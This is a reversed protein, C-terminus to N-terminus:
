LFSIWDQYQSQFKRNLNLLDTKITAHQEIIKNVLKHLSVATVENIDIYFDAVDLMQTLGRSKPQYGIFITPTGSSISFIGTHMRTAIMCDMKQYAAKVEISTSMTDILHVRDIQLKLQEYVRNAVIRDDQNHSPGFSQVFIFAEVAHKKALEQFLQVFANEYIAQQRFDTLQAERDIVTFGIRLTPSIKAKIATAEPVTPLSFAIDTMLMVQKQIRLTEKVFAFSIPERVMITLVNKLVVRALKQLVWGNIPGVSQPLMIVKKGLGIPYALTILAWLFSPSLSHDAYLNGGGCSLVLDASYFSNLLRKKEFSGIRLRIQFLRFAIISFMLVLLYFPTKILSGRWNGLGCDGVWNCLSFVSDIEEFKKWSKPDNAAVTVRADPYKSKLGRLTEYMIGEDGLNLASHAHIILINM